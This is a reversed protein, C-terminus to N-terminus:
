RIDKNIEFIRMYNMIEVLTDADRVIRAEMSITALERTNNDRHHEICEVVGDVTSISYSFHSELM